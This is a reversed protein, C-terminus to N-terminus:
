YRETNFFFTQFLRGTNKDHGFYDVSAHFLDGRYIVLRNFKNGVFDFKDWKTYDYGEYVDSSDGTRRHAGTEKYRYLATGGTFPADPTLYCVGAWMNHHDAHIWTRDSATALQFAGTYAANPDHNMWDTIKGAFQMNYEIAEKVGPSINPQTRSGPYNGYVSFEQSLAFDRVEQPNSYFDDVIILNVNM